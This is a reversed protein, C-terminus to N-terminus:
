RFKMWLCFKLIKLDTSHFLTIRKPRKESFLLFLVTRLYNSNFPLGAMMLRGITLQMPYKKVLLIGYRRNKIMLGLHVNQRDKEQFLIFIRRELKAIFINLVLFAIRLKM